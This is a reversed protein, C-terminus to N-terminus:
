LKDVLEQIKTRRGQDELVADQPIGPIRLDVTFPYEEAPTGSSSQTGQQQQQQKSQWADKLVVKPAPRPTSVRQNFIQRRSPSGSKEICDAKVSDYLIIAHSRTQGFICDKKKRGPWISGTSPTRILSGTVKVTCKERGRYITTSDKKQKMKLLTQPLSSCQKDGKKRTM